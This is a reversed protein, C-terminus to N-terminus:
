TGTLMAEADALSLTASDPNLRLYDEVEALRTKFENTQRRWATIAEHERNNWTLPQVPGM